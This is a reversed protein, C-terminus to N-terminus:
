VYCGIGFFHICIVKFQKIKMAFAIEMRMAFQTQVLLLCIAFHTTRGQRQTTERDAPFGTIQQTWVCIVCLVTGLYCSFNFTRHVEFIVIWFHLYSVNLGFLFMRKFTM